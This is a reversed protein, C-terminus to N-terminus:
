PRPTSGPPVPQITGGPVFLLDGPRLDNIAPHCSTFILRLMDDRVASDPEVAELVLQAPDMTTTPWNGASGTMAATGKGPRAAERRLM